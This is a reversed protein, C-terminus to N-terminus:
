NDTGEMTIPAGMVIPKIMTITGSSICAGNEVDIKVNNAIIQIGKEELKVFFKELDENAINIADKIDYEKEVIEYENMNEKGYYIPLYLSDFLHLQNEKKYLDYLDYKNFYYTGIRYDFIQLYSGSKTNGTYIKENYKLSFQNKYQYDVKAYVDADSAVYETTKIEKSDDLINVVGSVLVDGKKVKDGIKVMPTGTRTIISVIEGDSTAVIDQPENSLNKTDIEDFNEKIHIILRTGTLEASVWTIDKYNNRIKAEIDECNINDKKIGEYVGISQLYNTIEIDTYSYGGSLSIDWIFLSMFYIAIVFLVVAGIFMKRKRYKHMIFPLGSRNIIQIHVHTKKLPQKIKKYDWLAICAEFYDDQYKLNWISIERNHCLNIFREKGLGDIRVTIYGILYRATSKAIIM